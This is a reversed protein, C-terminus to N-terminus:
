IGLNRSASMGRNQHRAHELYFVRGPNRAAYHLAIDTSRDTSGDDVLLLERDYSQAFLSHIAEQIFREANLFIVVLSVLSNGNLMEEGVVSPFAIAVKSCAMQVGCGLAL